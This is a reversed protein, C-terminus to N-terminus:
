RDTRQYPDSSEMQPAADAPRRVAVAETSRAARVLSASRVPVPGTVLEPVSFTKLFSDYFEPDSQPVVFPKHALGTEDIFSLFTRTFTGGCRKSSFAIWRSNGSWSHWSESFESNIPLRAYTSQELDLLYLDSSPQYAPFCGYRCMCFLLFRGDPSVRPLLISLGTKEAALVTEPRGWRDTEIDYAMRMLDYKIEAYHEPPVAEGDTWLIAARCYYLQRGDPSWAPYTAMQRQDSAGPVNKSENAQVCYYALSSQLDVVDRVEPGAAHFFQRVKNTSYAAIRGSPHWATYGFPVALKRVSGEDVLLTAQGLSKSRLGILMQRPDNKPFSHCNVCGTDLQQGDLVASDQFTTLDRQRVAVDYWKNHVPPVLRYVLHGDIEDKAIRNVITEFRRWKGGAEAYVDFQLHQGRNADLLRRWAGPPITIAPRRRVIEIQGGARGRLRVLFREGEERVTFNLPAINPPVVIGAYDPSIRPPRLVAEADETALRAPWLWATGAAALAALFVAAASATRLLNRSNRPM